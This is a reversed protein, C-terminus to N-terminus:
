VVQMDATVAEAADTPFVIETNSIERLQPLESPHNIGLYDMFGKSTAYILPKGIAEERRGAISILEKDLLKQIAYDVSVGRIYEIESKTVPQKYAIISLTEMASTSLKKLHKDGNLQLAIQHFQPKTLFQFGGGSEQVSFPYFDASYKEIITDLAADIQDRPVDAELATSLMAALESRSISQSSAFILAETHPIITKLAIM